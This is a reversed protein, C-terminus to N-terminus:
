RGVFNSLGLDPTKPAGPAGAAGQLAGLQAACDTDLAGANGVGASSELIPLFSATFAGCYKSAFAAADKTLNVLAWAAPCTGSGSACPANLDLANNVNQFGLPALDFTQILAKQDATIATIATSTQRLTSGLTKQNTRIFAAVEGLGSQLNAISSALTQREGALSSTAHALDGYLANITSNRSALTTTLKDLGNILSSLQDPHATLAPLAAALNQIAQHVDSGNGNALQAFAHLALSLDGNANAGNPGLSKSLTDVAGFVADIELPVVTHKLDLVAGHALTAGGTYAPTLEVTRDSVPNPALLVAKVNAPLKIHDPVLLVVDVYGQEPKVSKIHGSPVGLIQVANHPYLGPTEKFQATVTYEGEGSLLSPVVTFLLLVVVGLVAAGIFTRRRGFRDFVPALLADIRSTM